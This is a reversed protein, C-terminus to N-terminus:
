VLYDLRVAMSRVIVKSLSADRDTPMPLRQNPATMPADLSERLRVAHLPLGGSCHQRQASRICGESRQRRDGLHM